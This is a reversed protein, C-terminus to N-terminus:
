KEERNIHKWATNNKIPYIAGITVNFQEAIKIVSIGSRLLQRIELVKKEDLKTTHIKEGYLTNHRGANVMDNMNDQQTGARLHLPNSCEPNHCSHLIHMGPPIEGYHIEYSLRHARKSKKDHRILGYGQFTSGIWKWCDNENEGKIVKEFYRLEIPRKPKPYRDFCKKSCFKGKGSNILHKQTYFSESCLKCKAIIKKAIGHEHVCAKSCYQNEHRNARSSDCKFNEHCNACSVMVSSGACGLSCYIGQGREISYRHVYFEKKCTKCNHFAGKKPSEMWCLKSCYKDKGIKVRHSYSEFVKGCYQCERQVKPM